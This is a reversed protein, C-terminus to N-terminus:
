NRQPEGLQYYQDGHKVRHHKHWMGRRELEPAIKKEHAVPRVLCTTFGISKGCGIDNAISNGIHAIQNKELRSYQIIADFYRARPKEAKAVYIEAGLDKAIREIRGKHGSNSVLMIRFDYRLKNFLNITEKSLNGAHIITDDVDFTILQIGKEKLKEYDIGYINQQYVDPIYTRMYEDTANKLNKAHGAM